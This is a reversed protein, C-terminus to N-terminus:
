GRSHPFLERLRPFHHERSWDPKFPDSRLRVGRALVAHYLADEEQDPYAPRAVYALCEWEPWEDDSWTGYPRTALHRLAPLDALTDPDAAAREFVERGQGILWCQFYWFGDTSCGDIIVDAASWVRASDVRDRLEQLRIEFDEIDVRDLRRLTATLWAERGDKGGGERASREILRWFEDIDM